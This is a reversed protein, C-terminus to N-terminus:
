SENKLSRLDNCIVENPRLIELYTIGGLHTYSRRPGDPYPTAAESFQCLALRLMPLFSHM